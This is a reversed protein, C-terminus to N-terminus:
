FERLPVPALCLIPIVLSAGGILKRALGLEAKDNTTPPHDVGLFFVLALMVLWNYQEGLIAFTFAGAVVVRALVHAWRGFLAYSIHGGDLQSIPLMNLGTILMGVWAAMYFPNWAFLPDGQLEPRLWRILLQFLLPDCAMVGENLPTGYPQAILIGYCAIPVAVVLGALPGSIGIDFLQRRDSQSGMGIVAGMTGIPSLPMPIFYPWSAAVRHRVAQLFHGMEHALLIAMVAAMYTLGDRWSVHLVYDFNGVPETWFGGAFCTSLCTLVFLVLPLVRRRPRVEPPPEDMTAVYTVGGDPVLRPDRQSPIYEDV